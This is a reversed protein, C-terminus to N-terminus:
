ELQPLLSFPIITLSSIVLCGVLDLVGEKHFDQDFPDMCADFKLTNCIAEKTLPLGVLKKLHLLPNRWPQGSEGENYIVM